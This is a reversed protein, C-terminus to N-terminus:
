PPALVVLRKLQISHRTRLDTATFLCIYPGPPLLEEQDNLGNWFLEGNAATYFNTVLQRVLIGNPDYISVTILAQTYPLEYSLLCGARPDDPRPIFPNPTIHLAGEHEPPISVSNPALPTSGARAGCSTWSSALASPLSPTLKELSRNRTSPLADVHWSPKYAVSDQVVGNPDRLVIIDGTNNLTIGEPPVAIATSDRLDPFRDFFCATDWVIVALHRPPLLLSSGLVATDAKGSASLDHLRYGRLDLTDAAANWIEVFEGCNGEPEYLIENFLLSHPPYSCYIQQQLSDNTPRQDRAFHIVVIIPQWGRPLDTIDINWLVTDGAPINTFLRHQLLEAPQAVSDRNADYVVAATASDIVETGNNRLHVTLTQTYGDVALRLIRWDFPLPLVSNQWGPTAGQFAESAKWQTADVAPQTPLIRELSHGKRGWRSRYFISDLVTSDQARLVFSDSSNNLSPLSTEILVADPPIYWYQKLATTDRCLVAFGRAPIRIRPLRVSRTRDNIWGGQLIRTRNETNHLELWEPEDGIPAPYVENIVFKQSLTVTPLLFIWCIVIGVPCHKM